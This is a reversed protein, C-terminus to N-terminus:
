MMALKLMTTNINIVWTTCLISVFGVSLGINMKTVHVNTTRRVGAIIGVRLNESVLLKLM